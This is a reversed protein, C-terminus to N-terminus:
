RFQQGTPRTCTSGCVIRQPLTFIDVLRRYLDFLMPQAVLAASGRNVIIIATVPWPTPISFSAVMWLSVQCSVTTCPVSWCTSTNPSHGHLLFMRHSWSVMGIAACTEAYATENPLDYPVTFGENHGSPGISGTVYMKRLTVDDWIRDMSAFLDPAGTYRAIDAIGAYLYMARVAHGTIESQQRVPMHDQCGM